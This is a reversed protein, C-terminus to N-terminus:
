LEHVTKKMLTCEYKAREVQLALLSENEKWQANAEEKIQIANIIAEESFHTKVRIEIKRDIALGNVLMCREHKGMQKDGDCVYLPFAPVPEQATSEQYCTNMRRGCKGCFVIGQLLASGRGPISTADTSAQWHSANDKLVQQNREFEEETIYSPHHNSINAIWQEKSKAEVTRKLPTTVVKTKGFIYKGCYIPNTLIFRARPLTLQEWGTEGKRDGSKYVVPFKLNHDSFHRVTACISLKKRFISFLLSVAQQVDKNPDFVIQDLPNYVYGVPLRLRLDGRAAKNILGGQMRAYIYHLEMETMSAKMGLLLRDNPDAPNYIGDEDIIVVNTLACFEILKAWDANSRSLRSAEISAIGGVVGTAVDSVLKQFGERNESYKGSIGLDCDIVEIYEPAWGLEILKSTLNYQRHTSEENERVQRATSQRVYVVGKRSLQDITIKSSGNVM